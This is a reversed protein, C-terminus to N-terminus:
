MINIFGFICMVDYSDWFFTHKIVRIRHRQSNHTEESDLSLSAAVAAFFDCCIIWNQSTFTSRPAVQSRSGGVIALLPGDAMLNNYTRRCLNIHSNLLHSFQMAMTYAVPYVRRRRRRRRRHSDYIQLRNPQMRKPWKSALSCLYLYIRWGDRERKKERKRVCVCVCSCSLLTLRKTATLKFHILFSPLSNSRERTSQMVFQARILRKCHM